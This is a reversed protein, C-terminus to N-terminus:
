ARSGGDRRRGANAAGSPAAAAERGGQRSEGRLKWDAFRVGYDAEALAWNSRPGSSRSSARRHAVPVGLHAGAAKQQREDRKAEAQQELAHEAAERSELAELAAAIRAKRTRPDAFEPALEDGRRDGYLEDARPASCLDSLRPGQGAQEPPEVVMLQAQTFPGGHDEVFHPHGIIDVEDAEGGMNLRGPGLQDQEAIVPRGLPARPARM